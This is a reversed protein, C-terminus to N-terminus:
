SWGRERLTQLNERKVTIRDPSGLITFQYQSRTYNEVTKHAIYFPTGVSNTRGQALLEILELIDANCMRVCGGSRGDGMGTPNDPQNVYVERDTGHFAFFEDWVPNHPDHFGCAVTTMSASGPNPFVAHQRTGEKKILKWYVTRGLTSVSPFGTDANGKVKKTGGRQTWVEKLGTPTHKRNAPNFLGAGVTVWYARTFAMKGEATKKIVYLNRNLGDLLLGSQGSRCKAMIQDVESKFHDYIYQAEGNSPVRASYTCQGMLRDHTAQDEIKLDQNMRTVIQDVIINGNIEVHDRPHQIPSNLDEQIGQASAESIGAITQFVKSSTTNSLVLLSTGILFRRRNLDPNKSAATEGIEPAEQSQKRFFLFSM